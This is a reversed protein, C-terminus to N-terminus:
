PPDFHTAALVDADELQQRSFPVGSPGESLWLLARDFVELDTIRSWISLADAGPEAEHWLEIRLRELLRRVATARLTRVRGSDFHRAHALVAFTGLKSSLLWVTPEQALESQAAVLRRRIWSDLAAIFEQQKAGTSEMDVARLWWDPDAPATSPTMHDLEIRIVRALSADLDVSRQPGNTFIRRM